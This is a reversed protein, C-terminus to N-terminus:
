DEGLTDIRLMTAMWKDKLKSHERWVGHGAFPYVRYEKTTKVANYPAFSTRPPCVDDQLGVSMLVPCAIWEAMNMTDFYSLLCNIDAFTLDPYAKFLKPYNDHAWQATELYGVWDGLWPIDPACFIIRSDLAATAFSLGGGQSGGEVGIRSADIEPRSVLFDVARLCDLYAGAYIYKEPREPDFGIFMYEAGKPDVDDKSNGHGRPNLAFAAVNTRNVYPWMTSTYGPVSLIAPHPGPKRPVTYWGRVKVNGYSQMEVLYVDVEDTSRDNKTVKYEPAVGALEQKRQKWFEDFDAQRTLPSVIKEPDYGLIMTKKLSDNLTCVVHYFGPPPPAFEITRSVEAKSDIRITERKSELVRVSDVRDNVLEFMANLEYAAHSHNEISITVPLPDPSFHIGNPNEFKFEIGILDEFRPLRLTIPGKYLGGDNHDDYVRVAIVNPRGWRVLSTPVRYFRRTYYATKFDPPMSGTAGVREGNLYTVDADDISGLSLSLIGHEDLPQWRKSVTFEVRYWAYGDYDRYGAEEWPVGVQIAQWQSDDMDPDAWAQNDGTHMVWGTDLQISDKGMTLPAFVIVIVVVVFSVSFDSSDKHDSVSRRLTLM